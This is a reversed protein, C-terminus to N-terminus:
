VTEGVSEGVYALVIQSRPVGAQVLADALIKDNVDREIIIQNNELWVILGTDAIHKGRVNAISVVTFVQGDDSHTLYTYGNLGKKAYGKMVAHLTEKLNDM